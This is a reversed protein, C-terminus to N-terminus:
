SLLSDGLFVCFDSTSKRDSLDGAWDADAYARLVLGSTFSLLLSQYLTGCVYRLSRLLAAWHTSNPASVYQSIIHVAYSIDPRTVTLYVSCGVLERYLTPDKLLVGHTAFLKAHLELTTDVTKDDTLNAHHLIDTIYKTQSLLYGKPSSAVEIGLFYWLPGLDKMEFERFLQDKVDRIASGSLPLHFRLLQVVVLTYYPLQPILSPLSSTDPLPPYDSVGLLCVFVCRTSLKTRDKKPLVFCSSGFVRLHSYNLVQGHLCEYPSRGSFLPTPMRNLLYAATLIVEGWFISPIFSSVSSHWLFFPSSKQNLCFSSVATCSTPSSSSPTHLSELIYLDGVRGGTRIKKQTVLLSSLGNATAISIPSVHTVCHNLLSIDPNMHHSSGSDFIWITPSISTPSSSHLGSLTTTMTSAQTSDGQIAALFAQYQQFEIFSPPLLAM